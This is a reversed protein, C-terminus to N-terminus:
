QMEHTIQYFSPTGQKKSTCLPFYQALLIFVHRYCINKQIHSSHFSCLLPASIELWRSSANSSMSSYKRLDNMLKDIQFRSILTLPYHKLAQVKHDGHITITRKENQIIKLNRFQLTEPGCFVCVFNFIRHYDIIIQSLRHDTGTILIDNIFKVAVLM